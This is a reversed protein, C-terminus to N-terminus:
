PVILVGGVSTALANRSVTFRGGLAVVSALPVAASFAAKVNGLKISAGAIPGDTITLEADFVLAKAPPIPKTIIPSIKTLSLVANGSLEDTHVESSAVVTKPPAPKFNVIVVSGMFGAGFFSAPHICQTKQNVVAAGAVGAGFPGPFGLVIQNFGLLSAPHIDFQDNIRDCSTDSDPFTPSPDERPIGIFETHAIAARNERRGAEAVEPDKSFQAQDRVGPAAVADGLNGTLVKLDLLALKTALARRRRIGVNTSFSDVCDSFGEILRVRRKPNNGALEFFEVMRALFDRHGPKIDASGETFGVIGFENGPEEIPLNFQPDREDAKSFFGSGDAKTREKEGPRYSCSDNLGSPGVAALPGEPPQAGGGAPQGPAPAGDAGFLAAETQPGVIGDPGLGNDTQFAQVTVQTRPGFMGDETLPGRELGNLQHQVRAVAPGQSGVRLLPQGVPGDEFADGSVAAAVGEERQAMESCDCPTAGCRQIPPGPRPGRHQQLHRQVARNGSWRQMQLITAQNLARATPHGPLGGIPMPPAMPNTLPEPPAMQSRQATPGPDRRAFPSRQEALSLADM